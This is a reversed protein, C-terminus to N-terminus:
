RKAKIKLQLQAGLKVDLKYDSYIKVNTTGANTTSTRAKIIFYKSNKLKNVKARDIIADYTTATPSTVRGTTANVIGSKLIAQNTVLSDLLNYSSDVVYVQLDLDIPFGNSNNIRIMATELEDPVDEKLEYPLTDVLIFNGVTGHLPLIVEVDFALKSTDLIFNNQTPGAKNIEFDSKIIIQKPTNNIIVAWNSNTKDLKFSDVKIQGVESILPTIIPLPNPIGTIPYFNVGPNYGQFIPFSADIPVGFSNSLIVKIQPDYLSFPGGNESKSFLSLDITDANMALPLNGLDGFIKRYELNSMSCTVDIQETGSPATTSGNVTVNFNINFQNTVTGGLTMDFTYDTLDYNAQALVPVSGTYTLPLTKSFPVGNKKANPITILISGNNHLDSSFSLFLNGNKVELSDILPGDPAVIFNATQNANVIRTNGTTFPIPLAPGVPITFPYSQDPLSILKSADLSFLSTRYIITISKDSEEVIKIDSNNNSNLMNEISLSGFVLPAAFNPDWQVEAIKDFDFNDKVCSQFGSVFVIFLLAFSIHNLQKNTTIKKM